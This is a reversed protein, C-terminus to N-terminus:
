RKGSKGDRHSDVTSQTSLWYIRDTQHDSGLVFPQAGVPRFGWKRYFRIARENKDWVGLWVGEYGQRIAEDICAAMLAAGVGRGIWERDAYLRQLRVSHSAPICAPAPSQLLRAYGVIQGAAEAILFCSAPDALQAAQIHPGFSQDVYVAMDRPDNDAGFSDEFTQRALAAISGSDTPLGRRINIKAPQM